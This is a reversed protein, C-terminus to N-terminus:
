PNLFEAVREERARQEAERIRREAEIRQRQEVAERDARSATTNAVNTKASAGVAESQRILNETEGTPQEAAARKDTRKGDAVGRESKSAARRRLLEGIRDNVVSSVPEKPLINLELNPSLCCTSLINALPVRSIIGVAM